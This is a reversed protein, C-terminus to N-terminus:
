GASGVEVKRIGPGIRKSVTPVARGLSEAIRGYSGLHDIDLSGAPVRVLSDVPGHMTLPAVDM